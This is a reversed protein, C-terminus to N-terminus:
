KTRALIYEALQKLLAVNEGEQGSAHFPALAQIAEAVLQRATQAASDFGAYRGILDVLQRYAETRTRDGTLLQNLTHRDQDDARELAHLLPLTLKGEIFDNGITKGTRHASGLFDLLDDVVQFAAGIRDGYTALATRRAEDAGAFLAGISCTSRILNGTKQRIVEFYQQETGTIDGILRLQAFEGNVMSATAQCFIELGRGGALKGILHMSHAHLWDGALIAATLGHRAVVTPTGRRQEARDIVDDHVLTAVHLYEFAAALQYLEADDRGCCRSCLVTLLPRIRKGGNFLAYHVIEGLLPDCGALATTLDHRMAAEVRATVTATTGRLDVPPHTEPTNM